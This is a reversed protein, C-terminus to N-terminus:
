ARGGRSVCASAARAQPDFYANAIHVYVVSVVWCLLYTLFVLLYGVNVPGFVKTAMLPRAYGALLAMGVIFGFSAVLLVGVGRLKMAMLQRFARTAVAQEWLGPSPRLTAASRDSALFGHATRANM